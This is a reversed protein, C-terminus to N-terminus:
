GPARERKQVQQITEEPPEPEDPVPPPNTPYFDSELISIAATLIRGCEVARGDENEFKRLGVLVSTLRSVHAEIQTPALKRVQRTQDSNSPSM